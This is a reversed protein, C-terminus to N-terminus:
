SKDVKVCGDRHMDILSAARGRYHNTRSVLAFSEDIATSAARRVKALMAFIPLAQLTGQLQMLPPQMLTTAYRLTTAYPRHTQMNERSCRDLRSGAVTCFAVSSRGVRNTKQPSKKGMERERLAAM